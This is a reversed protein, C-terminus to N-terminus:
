FKWDENFWLSKLVGEIHLMMLYDLDVYDKNLLASINNFIIEDSKNKIYNLWDQQWGM